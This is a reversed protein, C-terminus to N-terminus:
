PPRRVSAPVAVALEHTARLRVVDASPAVAWRQEAKRQRLADGAVGPDV